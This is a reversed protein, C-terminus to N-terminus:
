DLAIRRQQKRESQKRKTLIRREVSAKSPKTPRRPKPPNAVSAIMERLKERCDEANRLQDRYKQSSIIIDGGTTIRGAYKSLFRNKISQPLSSNSLVPWRLLAKSNVKNVNQGGPGGSRAFTFELEEEPIEYVSGSETM